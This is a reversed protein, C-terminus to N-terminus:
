RNQPYKSSSNREEGRMVTWCCKVGWIKWWSWLGPWVWGTAGSAAPAARKWSFTANLFRKTIPSPFARVMTKLRCVIFDEQCAVSLEVRTKRYKLANSLLNRLIQKVKTEDQCIKRTWLKEDISLDVGKEALTNKFQMLTECKKLKEAIATDTLDLIEVLTEELFNSLKFNSFFLM